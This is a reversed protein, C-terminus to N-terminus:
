LEDDGDDEEPPASGGSELERKNKFGHILREAADNLTADIMQIVTQRQTNTLAEQRDVTDAMLMLSLRITKYADSLWEVIKTTPWLQGSAVMFRQRHTEALWFEKSLTKPLESHHMKLLRRVMAPEDEEARLLVAAADRIHYVDTNARKGCPSIHRMNDRITQQPKMFLRSLESITCGNYFPNAGQLERLTAM